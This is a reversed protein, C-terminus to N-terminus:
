SEISDLRTNVRDWGDKLLAVNGGQAKQEAIIQENIAKADAWAKQMSEHIEKLEM